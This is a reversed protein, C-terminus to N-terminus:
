LLVNCSVQQSSQEQTNPTIPIPINQYTHKVSKNVLHKRPAPVPPVVRDPRKSEKSNNNVENRNGSMLEQTSSKSEPSNEKIPMTHLQFTQAKYCNGDLMVSSRDNQGRKRLRMSYFQPYQQETTSSHKSTHTQLTSFKNKPLMTVSQSRNTLHSGVHSRTSGYGSSGYQSLQSPPRSNSNTNCSAPAPQLCVIECAPVCLWCLSCLYFTLFVHMFTNCEM